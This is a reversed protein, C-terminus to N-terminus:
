IRISPDSSNTSRNFDRKSLPAQGTMDCSFKEKLYYV